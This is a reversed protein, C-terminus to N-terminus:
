IRVGTEPGGFLIRVVEPELEERKSSILAEVSSNIEVGEAQLVFGASIDRTESSLTIRGRKGAQEFATNAKSIIEEGIRERDRSSMVLEGGTDEVVVLLLRIILDVYQDEPMDRMAGLTRDFVEQIMEQKQELISKRAELAAMTVRQKKEEEWTRRAENVMRHYRAEAERNAESIVERRRMQAESRIHEAKEEADRLIREILKELPM